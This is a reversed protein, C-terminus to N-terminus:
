PPPPPGLSHFEKHTKYEWKKWFYWWAPIPEATEYERTWGLLPLLCEWQGWLRLCWTLVQWGRLLISAIAVHPVFHLGQGLSLCWGAAHREGPATNTAARFHRHFPKARKCVFPFVSQLNTMPKIFASSCDNFSNCFSSVHSESPGIEKDACSFSWPMATAPESNLLSSSPSFAHQATPPFCNASTNMNGTRKASGWKISNAKSTKGWM